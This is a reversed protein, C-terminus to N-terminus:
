SIQTQISPPTFRYLSVISKTVVVKKSDNVLYYCPSISRAITNNQAEDQTPVVQSSTDVQESPIASLSTGIPFEITHIDLESLKEDISDTIFKLTEHISLIKETRSLDDCTKKISILARLSSYTHLKDRLSLLEKEQLKNDSVLTANKDKLLTIVDTKNNETIKIQRTLEAIQDTIKQLFAMEKEIDSPEVTKPLNTLIIQEKVQTNTGEPLVQSAPKSVSEINLKISKTKSDQNSITPHSVGSNYAAYSKHSDSVSNNPSIWEKIITIFSYVLCLVFVVGLLYAWSSKADILMLFIITILSLIFLFINFKKKSM